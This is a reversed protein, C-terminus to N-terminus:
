SVDIMDDFDNNSTNKRLKEQYKTQYSALSMRIQNCLHHSGLRYAVSLKKNLEAIKERLEEETLHDLNSILPHEPYEM